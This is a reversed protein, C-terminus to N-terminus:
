KNFRYRASVLIKGGTRNSCTAAFSYLFANNSVINVLSTLKVTVTGEQPADPTAATPEADPFVTPFDGVHTVYSTFMGSFSVPFRGGTSPNATVSKRDIKLTGTLTGFQNMDATVSQSETDIGTSFANEATGDIVTLRVIPIRYGWTKKSDATGSSASGTVDELQWLKSVSWEHAIIGIGPTLDSSQGLGYTSGSALVGSLLVEYVPLGHILAVSTDGTGTVNQVNEQVVASARTWKVGSPFATITAAQTLPFTLAM